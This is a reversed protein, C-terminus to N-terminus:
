DDTITIVKAWNPCTATGWSKHRILGIINYVGQPATEPWPTEGDTLCIVIDPKPKLALAKKWGVRMDTGGGGTPVVKKKSFVKQASHVHADVSLVTVPVNNGLSKIVGGVEAVAQKLSQDGMSGSTDIIIAVNPVPSYSNPLIVDGVDRRSPKRFTYDDAGSKFQYARRIAVRLQKRWDVKEELYEEAWRKLHGPVNGRSKASEKVEKAVQRNIAERETKGIGGGDEGPGKQEHESGPAEQDGHAASGCSHGQGIKIQKANKMLLDYYEEAFLNPKFGASEPYIVDNPLQWTGEDRIDDNIEMDGALNFVWPDKTEGRDLHVRLLHNIEHYMVATLEAMNWKKEVEPDYYLRFYKDVGVTGLGPQEVPILAWILTALYPREYSLKFRAANIPNSTQNQM